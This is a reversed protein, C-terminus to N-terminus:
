PSFNNSDLKGSVDHREGRSTLPRKHIFKGDEREEQNSPWNKSNGAVMHILVRGSPM